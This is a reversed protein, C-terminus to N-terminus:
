HLVVLKMNAGWIMENVTIYAHRSIYAMSLGTPKYLGQRNFIATSVVNYLDHGEAAYRILMAIPCVVRISLNHVTHITLDNANGDVHDIYVQSSQM